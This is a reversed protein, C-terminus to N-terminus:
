ATQKEDPKPTVYQLIIEQEAGERDYALGNDILKFLDFGAGFLYATTAAATRIQASNINGRGTWTVMNIENVRAQEEPTIDKLNRLIPRVATYAGKEFNRIRDPTIEAVIPTMGKFYFIAPGGMYQYLQAPNLTKM